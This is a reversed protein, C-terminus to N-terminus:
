EGRQPFQDGAAALLAVEGVQLLQRFPDAGLLRVDDDIGGGVCGHVLGFAIGGVRAPHVRLRNRHQGGGRM